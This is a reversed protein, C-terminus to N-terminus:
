RVGGVCREEEQLRDLALRRKKLEQMALTKARRSSRAREAIDEARRRAAREAEMEERKERLHCVIVGFVNCFSNALFATLLGTSIIKSSSSWKPSFLRYRGPQASPFAFLAPRGHWGPPSVPPTSKAKPLWYRDHVLSLLNHCTTTITSNPTRCPVHTVM